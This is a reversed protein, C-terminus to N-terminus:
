PWLAWRWGWKAALMGLGVAIALFLAAWILRPFRIRKLHWKRKPEQVPAPVSPEQYEGYDDFTSGFDPTFVQTKEIENNQQEDM